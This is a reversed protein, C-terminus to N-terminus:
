FDVFHYVNSKLLLDAWLLKALPGRRPVTACTRGIPGQPCHRPGFKGGITGRGTSRDGFGVVQRMGLGTRDVIGFPM